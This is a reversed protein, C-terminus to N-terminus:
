KDWTASRPTHWPIWKLNNRRTKEIDSSSGLKTGTNWFRIQTSKLLKRTPKSLKANLLPNGAWAAELVQTEVDTPAVKIYSFPSCDLGM